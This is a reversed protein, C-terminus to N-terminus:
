TNWTPKLAASKLQIFIASNMARHLNNCNKSKQKLSKLVFSILKDKESLLCYLVLWPHSGQEVRDLHKWPERLPTLFAFNFAPVGQLECLTCSISLYIFHQCNAWHLFLCFGLEEPVWQPFYWFVYPIDHWSEPKTILTSLVLFGMHTSNLFFFFFSKPVTVLLSQIMFISCFICVILCGWIRVFRVWLCQSTFFWVYIGESYNSSHKLLM